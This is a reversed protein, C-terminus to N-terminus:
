VRADRVADAGFALTDTRDVNLPNPWVMNSPTRPRIYVTTVRAARSIPMM